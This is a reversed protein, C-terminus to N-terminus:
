IYIHGSIETEIGLPNLDVTKHLMDIFTRLTFHPYLFLFTIELVSQIIEFCKLLM